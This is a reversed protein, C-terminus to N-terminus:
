ALVPSPGHSRHEMTLSRRVTLVLAALSRGWAFRRRKAYHMERAACDPAATAQNWPLAVALAVSAAAGFKRWFNRERPTTAHDARHQALIEAVELELLAACGIVADDDMRRQGSTYNAFRQPTLGARRAIASDSDGPFRDKLATLLRQQTNM